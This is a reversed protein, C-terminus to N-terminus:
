ISVKTGKGSINRSTLTSNQLNSNQIKLLNSRLVKSLNTPRDSLHELCWLFSFPKVSDSWLWLTALHKGSVHITKPVNPSNITNRVLMHFEPGLFDLLARNVVARLLKIEQTEYPEEYDLLNALPM